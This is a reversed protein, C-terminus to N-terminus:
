GQIKKFARRIKGSYSYSISFHEAMLRVSSDPNNRMYDFYKEWAKMREAENRELREQRRREKEEAKLQKRSEDECITYVGELEKNDDDSIDLLEAITENKVRYIKDTSNVIAELEKSPLPEALSKNLVTVKRQIYQKDCGVNKLNNVYLWFYNHRRGRLDKKHLLLWKELDRQRKACMASIGGSDTKRESPEKRKTFARDRTIEKNADPPPKDPETKKYTKIVALMEGLNHRGKDDTKYLRSKINIKHNVSFPVRMLRNLNHCVKDAKYLEILDQTLWKHVQRISSEEKYYSLKETKELVFYLHFGRGSMLIYKPKIDRFVTYNSNFFDAIDSQKMNYPPKPTGAEDIDIFYTNSAIVNNETVSNDRDRYMINPCLFLNYFDNNKALRYLVFWLPANGVRLPHLKRLLFVKSYVSKSEDNSQFLVAINGTEYLRVNKEEEDYRPKWLDDLFEAFLREESSAEYDKYIRKYLENYENIKSKVQEVFNSDGM